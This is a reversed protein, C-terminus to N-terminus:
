FCARDCFKDNDNMTFTQLKVLFLSQWLKLIFVSDTVVDAVFKPMAM